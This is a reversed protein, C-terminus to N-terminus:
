MQPPQPHHQDTAVAEAVAEVPGDDDLMSSMGSDTSEEVGKPPTETQVAIACTDIPDTSTGRTRLTPRLGIDATGAQQKTPSPPDLGDELNVHTAEVQVWWRNLSWGLLCSLAVCASLSGWAWLPLCWLFPQVAGSRGM